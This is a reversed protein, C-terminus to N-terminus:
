QLKVLNNALFKYCEKTAELNEQYTKSIPIGKEDKSNKDLYIVPEGHHEAIKRVKSTFDPFIDIVFPERDPFFNVFEEKTISKNIGLLSAQNRSAKENLTKIWGRTDSTFKNSKTSYLKGQQIIIGLFKGLNNYMFGKQGGEKYIPSFSEVWKKIVSGLNDIAQLSFFTPTLPSIFYDSSLVFFANLVSTSSPSTDILIFDFDDKYKFIAEQMEQINRRDPNLRSTIFNSIAKETNSIELDGALLSVNPNKKSIFIEKNTDTEYSPDIVNKLSLHKDLMNTWTDINKEIAKEFAEENNDYNDYDINQALGFVYSTLNMQPDADILLIKKGLDALAFGLNFVTTTKGVGGKHSYFSIIKGSKM